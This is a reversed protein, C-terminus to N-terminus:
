SGSPTTGSSASSRGSAAGRAGNGRGSIGRTGANRAAAPPTGGPAAVNCGRLKAGVDGQIVPWEERCIRQLVRWVDEIREGGAIERVQEATLGLVITLVEPEDSM